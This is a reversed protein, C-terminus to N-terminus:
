IFKIKAKKTTCDEIVIMKENSTGINIEKVERARGLKEKKIDKLNSIIRGGTSLVIQEIDEGVVWRM